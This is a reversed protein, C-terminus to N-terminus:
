LAGAPQFGFLGALMSTPFEQVARNYEMVADNFRGRAFQLATEVVALQHSLADLEADACEPVPLRGHAEHLIGEAVRLSDLAGVAGPRARAHSSAAHAQAAAAQLASLAEAHAPLAPGLANIKRQLLTHRAQLQQDVPGFGSLIANRLGMLRNYAGVAWFALISVVAVLTIQLSSM